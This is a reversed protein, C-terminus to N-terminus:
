HSPNFSFPDWLTKVLPNIIQTERIGLQGLTGRDKIWNLLYIVETQIRFNKNALTNLLPTVASNGFKNLARAAELRVNDWSDQLAQILPIIAREDRLKGLRIAANSRVSRKPETLQTLWYQM